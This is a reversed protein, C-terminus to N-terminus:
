AVVASTASVLALYGAAKVRQAGPGEPDTLSKGFEDSRLIEVVLSLVNVPNAMRHEVEFDQPERGLLKNYLFHIDAANAALHAVEDCYEAAQAWMLPKGSSVAIGAAEAAEANRKAFEESILLEDAVQARSLGLTANSQESNAAPQMALDAFHLKGGDDAKRGACKGRMLSLGISRVLQLMAEATTTVLARLRGLVRQYLFSVAFEDSKLMDKIMDIATPWCVPTKVVVCM